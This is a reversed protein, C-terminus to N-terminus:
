ESRRCRPHLLVAVAVASTLLAMAAPDYLDGTAVFGVNSTAHIVAAAAVSGGLAQYVGVIVVRLAVTFLTQWCVWTVDHVQLWPLLHWAAWLIGIVLSARVMGWRAQLPDTAYGTWAIEELVALALLPLALVAAALLGSRLDPLGAERRALGWSLVTLVPLLTVALIWWRRRIAAPVPRAARGVRSWLLRVARRGGERHALATAALAPAVVMGISVSVGVGPLTGGTWAGLVWFPVSLVGTLAFLLLPSRPGPVQPLM